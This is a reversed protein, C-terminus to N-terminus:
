KDAYNPCGRKQHDCDWENTRHNAYIKCYQKNILHISSYNIHEISSDLGCEFDISKMAAQIQTKINECEKSVPVENDIEVDTVRSCWIKHEDKVYPKKNIETIVKEKTKICAKMIKPDVFVDAHNRSNLWFSGDLIKQVYDNTRYSPIKSYDLPDSIEYRRRRLVFNRLNEWYQM